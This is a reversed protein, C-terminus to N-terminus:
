KKMNAETTNNNSWVDTYLTLLKGMAQKRNAAVSAIRRENLVLPGMEGHSNALLKKNSNTETSSQKPHIEEAMVPKLHVKILGLINGLVELGPPYCDLEGNRRYYTVNQGAYRLLLSVHVDVESELCLCIQVEQTHYQVSGHGLNWASVFRLQDFIMFVDHLPGAPPPNQFCHSSLRPRHYRFALGPKEPGHALSSTALLWVNRESVWCLTANDRLESVVFSQTRFTQTHNSFLLYLFYWVVPIPFCDPLGRIRYFLM